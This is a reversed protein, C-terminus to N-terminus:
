ALVEGDKAADKVALIAMLNQRAIAAVAAAEDEGMTPWGM